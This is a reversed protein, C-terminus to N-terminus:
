EGALSHQEPAESLDRHVSRTIIDDTAEELYKSLIASLELAPDFAAALRGAHHVRM